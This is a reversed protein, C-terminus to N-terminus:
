AVLVLRRFLRTRRFRAHRQLQACARLWRIFVMGRRAGSSRYVREARILARLAHRRSGAILEAQCRNREVDGLEVATQLYRFHEASRDFLVHAATLDGDLAALVGLFRFGHGQVFAGAETSHALRECLPRAAAIRGTKLLARAVSLDTLARWYNRDEPPAGAILPELRNYVFARSFEYTLPCLGAAFLDIAMGCGKLCFFRGARDGESTAARHGRWYNWVARANQHWWGGRHLALTARDYYFRWVGRGQRGASVLGRRVLRRRADTASTDRLLRALIYDLEEPPINAAARRAVSAVVAGSSRTLVRGTLTRVLSAMDGEVLTVRKGAAELRVAFHTPTFNGPLELWFVRHINARLLITQIDPDAGSYGLFCFTSNELDKGLRDAIQPELGQTIQRLTTRISMPDALSGHLKELTLTPPRWPRAPHSVDLPVGLTSAAGEFHTDFNTTYITSIRQAAALTVVMEHVASPAGAALTQLFEVARVGRVQAVEELVYELRPFDGTPLGLANASAFGGATALADLIDQKLALAAPLNSPEWISVGAGAFVVVPDHRLRAALDTLTGRM